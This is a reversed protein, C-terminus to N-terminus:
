EGSLLADKVQEFGIRNVMRITRENELAHTEVYRYFREVLMLLQQDTLGAAVLQATAPILGGNGGIFFRWGNAAASIGIDRVHSMACSRPCNSIGIKLRITPYKRIIGDISSAIMRASLGSTAFRCLPEGQCVVTKNPANLRNGFTNQLSMWLSNVQEAPTNLFSIRKTATVALNKVQCARALEAILIFDDPTFNGFDVSFSVTYTGDKHETVPCNFPQEM